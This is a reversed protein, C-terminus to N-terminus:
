FGATDFSKRFHSVAQDVKAHAAELALQMTEGPERQAQLMLNGEANNVQFQFSVTWQDAPPGQQFATSPSGMPLDEPEDAEERRLYVFFYSGNGRYSAEFCKFGHREWDDTYDVKYTNGAVTITKPFTFDEEQSTM